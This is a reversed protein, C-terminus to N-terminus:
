FANRYVVKGDVLTLVSKLTRIEEVPVTLYNKNLVVLDALKGVELSGLESEDFGFWANNITYLQLAEIRTLTQNPNVLVGQNNKGTVMYYISFWPNMPGLLSGDTGAGLHIGEDFLTRFLPGANIGNLTRGLPFKDTVTYFGHNQVRLGMSLSKILEISSETGPSGLEFVHSLSWRLDKISQNKDIASIMKLHQINEANSVSHQEHSWGLTATQKIKSKYLPNVQGNVPFSVIHEGTGSYKLMSSGFLPYTNEIKEDFIDRQSTKVTSTHQIRVRITAEKQRNLTMLPQYEDQGKFYSAGIFGTGGEDFVTTLGVSNAYHMLNKTSSLKDSFTQRTQLAAFAAGTEVGQSFVGDSSVKVGLKKFYGIGISNTYAPGSFGSQIYLPHTSVANDLESLYPMRKEAFQESSLGGLVMVVQYKPIEKAKYKLTDLFQIINEASEVERTDHGPALGQRVFHLHSDILGPIVTNGKLDIVEVCKGYSGIEDTAIIRNHRIRIKTVINRDGDMTIFHGNTLILDKEGHCNIVNVDSEQASVQTSCVSIIILILVKKIVSM